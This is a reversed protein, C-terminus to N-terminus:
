KSLFVKNKVWLLLPSIVIQWSPVVVFAVSSLYQFSLLAVSNALYCLAIWHWTLEVVTVRGTNGAPDASYGYFPCSGGSYFPEFCSQYLHSAIINGRVLLLMVFLHCDRCSSIVRLFFFLNPPTPVYWGVKPRVGDCTQWWFLHLHACRRDM